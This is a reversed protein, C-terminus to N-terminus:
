ENGLVVIHIRDDVDPQADLRILRPEHTFPPEVRIMAELPDDIVVFALVGSERLSRGGQALGRTLRDESCRFQRKGVWVVGPGYRHTGTTAQAVWGPVTRHSRKAM